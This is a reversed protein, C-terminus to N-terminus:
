CTRAPQKTCQALSYRTRLREHIIHELRTMGRFESTFLANQAAWEYRRRRECQMSQESVQLDGNLAYELVIALHPPTWSAALIQCINPHHLRTLLLIEAKFRSLSDANVKESVLQKVAVTEGRLQKLTNPDALCDHRTRPLVNQTSYTSTM